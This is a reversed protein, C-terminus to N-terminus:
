RISRAVQLLMQVKDEPLAKICDILEQMEKSLGDGQATPKEKEEEGLLYGVYVDFYSAMKM